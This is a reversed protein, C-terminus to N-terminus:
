VARHEGEWRELLVKAEEWHPMALGLTSWFRASHNRHLLHAVEHAAVYEMAVKPAQILRWHVRIVGDKGCTGWAHKAESIRSGAAEVGLNREHTRVFGELDRLVRERLWADLGAQVAKLRRTGKLKQPVVIHFKSRCTVEVSDVDASQVDLMLWRGRYQLKAGSSYHQKLLKGQKAAIERVADFMWRRKTHVFATVGGSGSLETGVPAIVQVGDPGM